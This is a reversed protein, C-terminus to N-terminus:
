WVLCRNTAFFFASNHSDPVFAVITVFIIAKVGIAQLGNRGGQRAQEAPERRAARGVYVRRRQRGARRRGTPRPAADGAAACLEGTRKQAAPNRQQPPCLGELWTQRRHPLEQRRRVM